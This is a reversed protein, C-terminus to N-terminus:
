LNRRLKMEVFEPQRWNSSDDWAIEGYSKTFKYLGNLLTDGCDKYWWGGPRTVKGGYNLACNIRNSDNDADYTTFKNNNNYEILNSYNTANGSFGNIKLVYKTQEGTIEFTNYKAYVKDHQRKMRMNILLQSKKPSFSPKTLDHINENGFWFEGKLNGFGDKYDNWNRHFDVSGDQRRQFVTWGGDETTQDCFAHIIRFGPGRLRYVGNIKYGDLNFQLCDKRPEIDTCDCVGTDKTSRKCPACSGHLKRLDIIETKIINYENELKQTSATLRKVNQQLKLISEDLMLGTTNTASAAKETFVSQFLFYTTALVIIM